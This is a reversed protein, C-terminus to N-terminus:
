TAMAGAQGTKARGAANEQTKGANERTKRKDTPKIDNAGM